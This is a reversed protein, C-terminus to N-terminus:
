LHLFQNNKKSEDKKSYALNNLRFSQELKLPRVSHDFTTRKKREHTSIKPPFMEFFSFRLVIQSMIPRNKKQGEKASIQEIILINAVSHTKEHTLLFLIKLLYFCDGIIVGCM